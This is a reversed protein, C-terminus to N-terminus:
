NTKKQTDKFNEIASNKNIIKGLENYKEEYKVSIKDVLKNVKIVKFLKQRLMEIISCCLYIVVFLNCSTYTNLAVRCFYLYSM